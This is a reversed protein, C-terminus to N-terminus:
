WSWPSLDRARVLSISEAVGDELLSFLLFVFTQYNISFEIKNFKIDMFIACLVDRTYRYFLLHMLVYYITKRDNLIFIYSYKTVASGRCSLVFLILTRGAFVWILRPMRGTQDTKM